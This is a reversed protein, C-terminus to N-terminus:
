PVQPQGTLKAWVVNHKAHTPMVILDKSPRLPNSELLRFTIGTTSHFTANGVLRWAFTHDGPPSLGASAPFRPV